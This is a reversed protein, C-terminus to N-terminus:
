IFSKIEYKIEEAFELLSKKYVSLVLVKRLESRDHLKEVFLRYHSHYSYRYHLFRSGLIDHQSIYSYLATGYAAPHKQVTVVKHYQFEGETLETLHHSPYVATDHDFAHVMLQFLRGYGVVQSAYGVAVAKASLCLHDTGLAIQLYVCQKIDIQIVELIIVIVESM